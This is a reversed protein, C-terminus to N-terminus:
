PNADFACLKAGEGDFTLVFNCKHVLSQEPLATDGEIVVQGDARLREVDTRVSDLIKRQVYVTKVPASDELSSVAILTKLDANFGTASRERGFFASLGDYRGGNAIPYGVEPTIVSFVLGTHYDYGNVETFDIYCAVGPFREEVADLVLGVQAIAHDLVSDAKGVTKKLLDLAERGGQITALSILIQGIEENVREKQLTDKLSDVRKSDLADLLDNRASESLDVQSLLHRVVQVHGIDLTLSKVGISTLTSLMLQIVEVDAELSSDGFLECGIQIPSRGGLVRRPSTHVVSGAYCLRNAGQAAMSHADIRAIQATIDARLGLTRGSGRDVMKFTSLDLDPNTDLLLSEVFEIVPPVVLEYGWTRYTNLLFRRLYEVKSADEPLLEAIGDPLLWRDMAM